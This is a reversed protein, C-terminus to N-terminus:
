QIREWQPATGSLALSTSNLLKRDLTKIKSLLVLKLYLCWILFIFQWSKCEDENDM